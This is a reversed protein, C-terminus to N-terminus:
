VVSSISTMVRRRPTFCSFSFVFINSSLESQVLAHSRAGESGRGVPRTHSAARAMHEGGTHEPQDRNPPPNTGDGRQHLDLEGRVDQHEGERTKSRPPAHHSGDAGHHLVQTNNISNSENSYMRHQSNGPHAARLRSPGLPYGLDQRPTRLPPNDDIRGLATCRGQQVGESGHGHSGSRLYQLELGAARSRLQTNCGGGPVRNRRGHERPHDGQNASRARRGEKRRSHSPDEVRREKKLSQVERKSTEQLQQLEKELQEIRADQ